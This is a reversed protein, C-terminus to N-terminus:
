GKMDLEAIKRFTGKGFTEEVLRGISLLNGTMYAKAFFQFVEEQDKFEDRHKNWVKDMLSNLMGRQKKYTHRITIIQPSGKGLAYKIMGILDAPAETKAYLTDGTFLKKGSKSTAKPYKKIVEETKNIEETFIPNNRLGGVAKQFIRRGLEETMAENLESFYKNKGDRSRTAFGIRYSEAESKKGDIVQLANYSKFHLMEHITVALTYLKPDGADKVAVGQLRSDYVGDESGGGPWKAAPIIHINKPPVDFNELGYSRRVENTLNNAIDIVELEEATKEREKGELGKFIQDNFIEGSQKLIEQEAESSAGAVREISSKSQEFKM